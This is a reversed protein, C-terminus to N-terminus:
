DCFRFNKLHVTGSGISPREPNGPGGLEVVVALISSFDPKGGAAPPNGDVEFWRWTSRTLDIKKQLPNWDHSHVEEMIYTDGNKYSWQTGARDVVRFSLKVPIRKAHELRVDFDFLRFRLKRAYGGRVDDKM